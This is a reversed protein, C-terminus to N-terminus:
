IFSILQGYSLEDYPIIGDLTLSRIKDRVKDELFKPLGALFKEKWFPQQSDERTYVRTLFTDKYWRFDSLTKCRLNSLLETSRDKWLSPDGIFHSAVTFILTNVADPIPEGDERIIPENQDNVKIASFISYKQNDSLYNDWWGKLQGSFGSIIVNAIAEEFTKHAAQYATGVMTMHQLMSMINYKTKGDINWEYVNNANFSVFGLEREELALDPASVRNYGYASPKTLGKWKTLSNTMIPSVKLSSKGSDDSQESSSENSEHGLVNIAKSSRTQVRSTSKGSNIPTEPVTTFRNLLQDIKQIVESDSSQQKLISTKLSQKARSSMKFPKFLPKEISKSASAFAESVNKLSFTSGSSSLNDGLCQLFRNTYNSQEILNKIDKLTVAEDVNKSKFPSAMVSNHGETNSIIFAGKLSFESRVLNGDKVKWTSIVNSRVSAFDNSTGAESRSSFSNRRDFFIEVKGSEDQKIERLLPAQRPQTPIATDISWSQSLDIEDWRILRSIMVNAKTMDTVFLTTERDQSKLLVRSNCTNMVKYQIRYILAAPGLSTEVTGILSDQFDNHRIDRLCMFISANLSERILPKVAVQVCGIHLYRYHRAHERVSQKTLLHFEEGSEPGLPINNETTKIIYDSKRKNDDPVYLEDQPIKPIEWNDIAQNIDKFCVEEEFINHKPSLKEPRAVKKTLPNSSSHIPSTSSSSPSSFSLRITLNTKSSLLPRVAVTGKLSLILCGTSGSKFFIYSCSCYILVHVTFIIKLDM